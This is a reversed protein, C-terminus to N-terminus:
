GIEPLTRQVKTLGLSVGSANPPVSAVEDERRLPMEGM